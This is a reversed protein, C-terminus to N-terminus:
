SDHQVTTQAGGRAGEEEGQAHEQHRAVHQDLRAQEGGEAVGGEQGAGRHHGQTEQVRGGQGEEGGPQGAREDGEEPRAARAGGGGADEHAADRRRRAKEERPEAPLEGQADGAREDVQDEVRGGDPQHGEDRAAARGAVTREFM